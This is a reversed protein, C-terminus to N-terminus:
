LAILSSRKSILQDYLLENDLLNYQSENFIMEFENKTLIIASYDKAKEIRKQAANESICIFSLNNSLRNKVTLNSNEAQESLIKIEEDSFGIFL